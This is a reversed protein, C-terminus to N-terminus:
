GQWHGAGDAYSIVTQDRIEPDIHIKSRKAFFNFSHLRSALEQCPRGPDVARDILRHPQARARDTRSIMAIGSRRADNNRYLATLDAQLDAFWCIM